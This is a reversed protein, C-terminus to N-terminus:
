FRYSFSVRIAHIDPDFSSRGVKENGFDTYAYEARVSWDEDLQHEVGAGIIFGVLTESYNQRDLRIDFNAFAVGGTAYLLTDPRVLYGARGKASVMWDADFHLGDSNRKEGNLLSLEGEVGYVYKGKQWNKGAYAGLSAGSDGDISTKSVSGGAYYSVWNAYHKHLEAHDEKSPAAKQTEEYTKTKSHVSSARIEAAKHRAAIRRAREQRRSEAREAKLTAQREKEEARRAALEAQKQAKQRQREAREARLQAQRQRNAELEAKRKEERARQRELKAERKLEAKRRAEAQQEEDQRIKEAAAKIEEAKNAEEEKKRLADQKAKEIAKDAGEGDKKGFFQANFQPQDNDAQAGSSIAIPAMFALAMLGTALSHNFHAKM